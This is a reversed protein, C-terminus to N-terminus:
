FAKNFAPVAFVIFHLERRSPLEIKLTALAGSLSWSPGFTAWSRGVQAWSRGVEVWSSCFNPCFRGVEPWSRWLLAWSRGFYPGVVTWSGAFLAWSRGLLRGLSGLQAWLARNFALVAFVHFNLERRSPLKIKLTALAGSISWRPGFKAWSRGVQAWSRGVEVWSGCFRAWSGWILAWSRGLAVLTSGLFPGLACFPSPSGFVRACM